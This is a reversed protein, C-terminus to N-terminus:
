SGISLAGTAIALRTPPSVRHDNNKSACNRGNQQTGNGGGGRRCIQRDLTESALRLHMSHREGRVTAVDGEQGSRFVQGTNIVKSRVWTPLSNLRTM